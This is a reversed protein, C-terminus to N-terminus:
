KDPPVYMNRTEYRILECAEKPGVLFQVESAFEAASVTVLGVGPSPDFIVVASIGWTPYTREDTELRGKRIDALRPQSVLPRFFATASGTPLDADVLARFDCGVVMVAHGFEPLESNRMGAIFPTGGLLSEIMEDQGVVVSLVSGANLRVLNMADIGIDNKPNRRVARDYRDAMDPCLALMIDRFTAAKNQESGRWRRVLAAQSMDPPFPRNAISSSIRVTGEISAAWCWDPEQQVAYGLQDTPLLVRYMGNDLLKADVKTRKFAGPESDPKQSLPEVVWIEPRSIATQPSSNCGAILAAGGLM